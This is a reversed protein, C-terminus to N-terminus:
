RQPRNGSKKVASGRLLLNLDHYVTRTLILCLTSLTGPPIIVTGSNHPAIMVVAAGCVASNKPEKVPANNVPARGMMATKKTQM